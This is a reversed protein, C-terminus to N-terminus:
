RSEKKLYKKFKKRDFFNVKFSLERLIGHEFETLTPSLMKKNMVLDTPLFQSILKSVNPDYNKYITDSKWPILFSEQGTSHVFLTDTDNEFAITVSSYGSTNSQLVHYFAMKQFQKFDNLIYKAYEKELKDSNEYTTLWTQILRGKNSFHWTSDVSYFDLLSTLSKPQNLTEILEDILCPSIESITENPKRNQIKDWNPIRGQYFSRLTDPSKYEETLILQPLSDHLNLKYVRGYIISYNNNYEDVIVLRDFKSKDVLQGFTLQSNVLLVIIIFTRM